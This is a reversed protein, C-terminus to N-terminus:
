TLYQHIMAYEEVMQSTVEQKTEQKSELSPLPLPQQTKNEIPRLQHGGCGFFLLILIMTFITIKKM